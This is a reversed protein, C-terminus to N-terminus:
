QIKNQSMLKISEQSHKKGKFGAVKDGYARRGKRTMDALNDKQTGMFLHLPNVCLTTDCKHCVKKSRSIKGVFLKYAIRHALYQKYNFNVCGYLNNVTSGTWIWCGTSVNVNYRKNFYEEITKM